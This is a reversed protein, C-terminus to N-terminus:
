LDFHLASRHTKTLEQSDASNCCSLLKTSQLFHLTVHNLSITKTSSFESTIYSKTNIVPYTHVGLYMGYAFSSSILTVQLKASNRAM